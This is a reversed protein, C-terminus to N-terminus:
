RGSTAVGGAMSPNTPLVPDTCEPFLQPAARHQTAQEYAYAVEILTAEDFPRAGIQLTTPTGLTTHLGQLCCTRMHQCPFLLLLLPLPASAPPLADTSPQLSFM